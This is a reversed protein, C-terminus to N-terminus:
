KKTFLVTFSYSYALHQTLYPMSSLHHYFSWAFWHQNCWCQVLPIQPKDSWLNYPVRLESVYLFFSIKFCYVYYMIVWKVLCGGNSRLHQKVPMIFTAEELSCTLMTTVESGNWNLALCVCLCVFARMFVCLCVGTVVQLNYCSIFM